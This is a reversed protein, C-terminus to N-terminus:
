KKVLTIFTENFWWKKYIEYAKINTHFVNLSFTWIWKKKVKDIFYNVLKTSASKGRSKKNIYLYKIHWKDTLDLYLSQDKKIEWILFWTIEQNEKLLYIFKNKKNLLFNELNLEIRRNSYLKENREFNREESFEKFLTILETKYISTYNIIELM